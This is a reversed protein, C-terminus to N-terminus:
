DKGFDATYYVKTNSSNKAEAMGVKNIESSLLISCHGDTSEVWRNIIDIWYDKTVEGGIAKVDGINEMLNKGYFDNFRAREGLSSKRQPTLAQGTIDSETGSGLHSLKDVSLMDKSHETAANALEQSWELKYTPGSERDSDNCTINQSRIYNIVALMKDKLQANDSYGEIKNNQIAERISNASVSPLNTESGNLGLNDGCGAFFLTITTLFIIRKMMVGMYQIYLLLM